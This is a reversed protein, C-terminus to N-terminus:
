LESLLDETAQQVALKTTYKPTWGLKKISIPNLRVIPVDGKWGVNGGTYILKVNQLDMTRVIINAIETVTIFDTSTL